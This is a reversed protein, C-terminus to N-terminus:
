REGGENVKKLQPLQESVYWEIDKRLSLTRLWAERVMARTVAGRGHHERLRMLAEIALYCPRGDAAVFEPFRVLWAEAEVLLRRSETGNNRRQEHRRWSAAVAAASGDHGESPTPTMRGM